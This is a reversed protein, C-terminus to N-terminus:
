YRVTACDCQPAPRNGTLGMGGQPIAGGGVRPVLLTSPQPGRFCQKIFLKDRSRSASSRWRKTSTYWTTMRDSRRRAYTTNLTAHM